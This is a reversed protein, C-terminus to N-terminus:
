AAEAPASRGRAALAALDSALSAIAPAWAAPSPQRYLRLTPYWPSDSRGRFWRWCADFRSLMWVPKGLAGALHAVATDVAIVLDLGAIIAATDAFDTVEAMPDFIPFAADARQAAPAGKQLSVFIVGPAAALPALAALALSRRQDVRRAYARHTQPHGAWVLGVRVGPGPPLRSAWHAVAVPDADLYPISAPITAFDTKFVLPLSLIPCHVDFAPLAEGEAIVDAIGPMRACLRKLPPQVELIVEAGLAAVMPAYRVFQLTDGFGEAAHLLIRRGAIDEGQWRPQVFARPTSAAQALRREFYAFGERMNTGSALLALGLNVAIDPDAPDDAVGRRFAAIAEDLRDLAFLALGKNNESRADNPHFALALDATEVARAFEGMEGLTAALTAYADRDGPHAHLVEILLAVAEEARGLSRLASAQNVMLAHHTVGAARAEECVALAAEPQDAHELAYALNIWAPHNEPACTVAARFAIAADAPRAFASLAMGLDFWVPAAYPQATIAEQYTVIAAAIQGMRHLCRGLGFKAEWLDPASELAARYASAGARANGQEELAAGLALYFHPAPSLALAQRFLSEAVEAHQQALHLMGRRYRAEASEPFHSIATLFARDAAEVAGSEQLDAANDLIQELTM